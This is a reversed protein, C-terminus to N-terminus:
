GSVKVHKREFNRGNPARRLKCDLIVPTSNDVVCTQILPPTSCHINSAKFCSQACGSAFDHSLMRDVRTAAPDCSADYSTFICRCAKALANAGPISFTLLENEVICLAKLRELDALQCAAWFAAPVPQHELHVKLKELLETREASPQNYDESSIIYAHSM